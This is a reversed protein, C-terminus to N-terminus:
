RSAPIIAFDPAFPAAFTCNPCCPQVTTGRSVIYRESADPLTTPDFRARYIPKKRGLRRQVGAFIEPKESFVSVQAEIGPQLTAALQNRAFIERCLKGKGYRLSHNATMAFHGM